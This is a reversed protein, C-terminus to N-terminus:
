LAALAASVAAMATAGIDVTYTAFAIIDGAYWWAGGAYERGVDLPFMAPSNADVGIAGDAVGNRYANRGAVGLVGGTMAPAATRRGAFSGNFYTCANGDFWPCLVFRAYTGDTGTTGLIAVRGAQNTHNAYRAVMSRAQGNFPPVGTTRLYQTSGNFTWGTAANWTPAASPVTLDHTGPNALNTYSAAQSAAGKAAFAALCDAANIGGALWWEAPAAVAVQAVRGRAAAMPYPM